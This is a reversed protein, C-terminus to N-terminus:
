SLLVFLFLVAQTLGALFILVSAKELNGAIRDNQVSNRNTALAFDVIRDDFFDEDTPPEDGFGEIVEEPDCVGEFARIRTALVTFLLALVLIAAIALYAWRTYQASNTLELVDKFKFAVAGLYFIIISLYLKAKNDLQLSRQNEEEYLENFFKYQGDTAM